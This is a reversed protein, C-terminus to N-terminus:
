ERVIIPLSLKIDSPTFTATDSFLEIAGDVATVTVEYTEYNTLGTLTYARTNRALGTIPSPQDGPTGSYSVTWTAGSPLNTNVTWTLAITQDDTVGSLNATAQFEVAGIDPNNRPNGLIDESSSNSNSGGDIVVSSAGPTGYRNVMDVFVEEISSSGDNFLTGNWRPITLTTQNALIPNAVVGNADDTYNILENSDTPVATGGNWYLNNDLSFSTTEGIPTDSFDNSGSGTSGMTGSADSWINNFFQINQNAPNSGEQNLRMAFALAPLDGVVTNHRFIVDRGGKVGFPARMVNSSNGLMLNNEVLVNRSEFFPQGDEGILVFNSGTSGAWNFFINRRVTINDNGTYFDDSGNSDKIVIFSGTNNNNVRGSGEFDNFFINDQIIVDEVSNVDIHEDSGSQNYFMNGEVLIDHASNNIKLLDNNYSDHFINNRFTIDSVSRDGNGDVHVVLPSSGAGTHRIEFGEITIGSVDGGSGYVVIVRDNNQLIAQYPTESQITVGQAFNGTIQQRGNYTGPKVLITSNDGVSAVAHEITAWPNGNSGDGTSDSGNTAVYFIAGGARLNTQTAVATALFLILIFPILRRM